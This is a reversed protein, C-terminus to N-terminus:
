IEKLMVHVFTVPLIMIFLFYQRLQLPTFMMALTALEVCFM